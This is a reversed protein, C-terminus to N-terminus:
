VGSSLVTQVVRIVCVHVCVNCVCVCLTECVLLLKRECERPCVCTYMCVCAGLGRM